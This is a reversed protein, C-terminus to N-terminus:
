VVPYYVTGSGTSVVAVQCQFAVSLHDADLVSDASGLLHDGDANLLLIRNCFRAALNIDHTAMIM